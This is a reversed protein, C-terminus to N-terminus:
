ATPQPIHALHDFVVPGARASVPLMAEIRAAAGNIQIHWGLPEIRKALARDDRGDHRGGAGPQIPHACAAAALQKLELDSVADNVVAVGRATSGLAAISFWVATTPGTRRRSCSSTAARASGSKCRATTRSLPTARGSRPPPISPYRADYIHHHCDTANPPAALEARRDRVVM